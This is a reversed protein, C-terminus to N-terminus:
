YRPMGQLHLLRPQHGNGPVVAGPNSEYASINFTSLRVTHAPKRDTAESEDDSGMDFYGGQVKVMAISLPGGETKNYARQAKAPQLLLLMLLSSLICKM